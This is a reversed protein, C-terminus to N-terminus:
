PVTVEVSTSKASENGSTDVSTAAYYYSSGNAVTSDTYLTSAIVSVNVKKWSKGDPSRYLNYGTVDTSSSAKWSLDVIHNAGSQITISYSKSSTGGRCGTVKVTFSDTVATTPTGSLTLTAPKSSATMKIGPPLAGATIAWSAPTCGGSADIVASYATNVTGNPVATTVISINANLYSSGFVLLLLPLFHSKM